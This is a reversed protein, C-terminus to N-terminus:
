LIRERTMAKKPILTAFIMYKELQIMGLDWGRVIM